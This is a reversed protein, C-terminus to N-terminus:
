KENKVQAHEKETALGWSKMLDKFSQKVYNFARIARERVRKSLSPKTDELHPAQLTRMQSIYKGKNRQLETYFELEGPRFIRTGVDINGDKDRVQASKPIPSAYYAKLEDDTMKMRRQTEPTQISFIYAEREAPSLANVEAVTLKRPRQPRETM